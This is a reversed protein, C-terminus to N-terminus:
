SGALAECISSKLESDRLNSAPSCVAEAAARRDASRREDFKVFREQAAPMSMFEDSEFYRLNPIPLWGLSIAKDLEDLASDDDGAEVQMAAKLAYHRNAVIGAALDQDILNSVRRLMEAAGENDGSVRRLHALTLSDEFGSESTEHDPEIEYLREYQKLAGASDGALFLADGYLSVAEPNDPSELFRKQAIDLATENDGAVWKAFAAYPGLLPEAVSPLDLELLLFGTFLRARPDDPATDLAKLFQRLADGRNGELWSIEGKLSETRGPFLAEIKKAVSRAEDFRGREALGHSLNFNAAINLPDLEIAHRTAEFSEREDRLFSAKWMYARAMNPNIELARNVARLSGQKDGKRDLLVAMAAWADALNPDIELARKLAPEARAIVEELSLDGYCCPNGELLLVAEGMGALAPAYDPAVNLVQEFADVAGELAQKNRRAILHRGLLFQEYAEPPIEQHAASQSDTPSQGVASDPNANAADMGLHVKLAAVIANSIEDQLAFIDTLEREYTESWLHKDEGADILQATIRIRTGSKRVSGELVNAVGLQSAVTPIDINEGKFQFASSRSTVHLGPTQALVNLIEESIGESFYEQDPDASMNVFPLVAISAKGPNATAAIQERPAGVESGFLGFRDALLFGVLLALAAIILRDIKRGTHPTISADADVEHTKKVGEPTIEYAWAFILAIPLGVMLLVVVLRNTWEPLLLAPILEGTVQLLLWGVVLYAVGVRVVNRRKLEELFKGM